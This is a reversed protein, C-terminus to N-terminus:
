SNGLREEFTPWHGGGGVVGVAPWPVCKALSFADQSVPKTVILQSRGPILVQFNQTILPPILQYPNVYHTM